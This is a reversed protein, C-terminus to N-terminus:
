PYASIYGRDSQFEKHWKLAWLEGLRLNRATGDAFGINVSMNSLPHRNIAWRGMSTGWSTGASGHEPDIPPLDSEVPWAGHWNADGLLVADGPLNNLRGFFKRPDQGWEPTHCTWYNWGYSGYILTDRNATAVWYWAQSASGWKSENGQVYVNEGGVQTATTGPVDRGEGPRPPGDPCIMAKVIGFPYRSGLGREGMYPALRIWWGQRGSGVTVAMRGGKHDASYHHVATAWQRQTSLCVVSSGVAMARDLAPTLLALLVVIITIVVLLEILTFAARPTHIASNM